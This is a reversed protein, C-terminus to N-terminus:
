VWMCVYARVRVRVCVCCVCVCVFVYVCVCMCVYVCVCVYVSVYVCVCGTRPEKSLWLRVSQRGTPVSIRAAVGVSPATDLAVLVFPSSVCSRKYTLTGIM